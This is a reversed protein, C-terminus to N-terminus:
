GIVGVLSRYLVLPRVLLGREAGGVQVGANWSQSHVALVEGRANLLVGGSSGPGGMGDVLVCHRDEGLTVEAVFSGGVLAAVDAGPIFFRAWVPDAEEPLARAILLWFSFEAPGEVRAIALDRDVERRVVQALGARGDRSRWELQPAPVCHNATVILAASIPAGLCRSQGVRVELVQRSATKVAPPAPDAWLRPAPVFVLALHAVVFLVQRRIRALPTM